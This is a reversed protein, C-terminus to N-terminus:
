RRNVRSISMTNEYSTRIISAICTGTAKGTARCRQNRAELAILLAMITRTHKRIGVEGQLHEFKVPRDAHGLPSLGVDLDVAPVFPPDDFVHKEQLPSPCQAFPTNM